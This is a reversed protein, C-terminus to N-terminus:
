EDGSLFDSTYISPAMQQISKILDVHVKDAFGLTFGAMGSILRVAYDFDDELISYIVEVVDEELGDAATLVALVDAAVERTTRERHPGDLPETAM